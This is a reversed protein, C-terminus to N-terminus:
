LNFTSSVGLLAVADVQPAIYRRVRKSGVDALREDLVNSLMVQSRRFYPKGISSELEDFFVNHAPLQWFNNKPLLHSYNNTTVFWM